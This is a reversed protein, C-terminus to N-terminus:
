KKKPAPKTEEAPAAEETVITPKDAAKEKRVKEPMPKRLKEEPICNWTVGILLGLNINHTQPRTAAWWQKYITSGGETTRYKANKNEADGAGYCGRAKLNFAMSETLKFDLGTEVVISGNYKNYIDRLGPYKSINPDIPAVYEKVNDYTQGGLLFGFQYGAYFSFVAKNDWYNSHVGMMVPVKLYDLRTVFRYRELYNAKSTYRYGQHSYLLGVKMGFNESPNYGVYGGAAIGWLPAYRFRESATDQIAKDDANRMTVYQPLVFLTYKMGKQAFASFSSALLSIFVLFQLSKKM